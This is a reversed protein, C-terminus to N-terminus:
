ASTKLKAVNAEVEKKHSDMIHRALERPNHSKFGCGFPCTRGEDKWSKRESMAWELIEPGRHHATVHAGLSQPRAFTASCHKCAYKKEKGFDKGVWVTKPESM